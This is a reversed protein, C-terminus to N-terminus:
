TFLPLIIDLIQPLYKIILELLRELNDIDIAFPTTAVVAASAMVPHLGMSKCEEDDCLKLRLEDIAGQRADQSRLRRKAVRRRLWPLREVADDLLEDFTKTVTTM